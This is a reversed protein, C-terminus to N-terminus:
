AGRRTALVPRSRDDALDVSRGRQTVQIPNSMARLLMERAPELDAARITAIKTSVPLEAEIPTLNLLQSEVEARARDRDVAIGDVEPVIVVNSGQIEM